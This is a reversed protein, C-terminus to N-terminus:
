RTFSIPLYVKSKQEFSVIIVGYHRREPTKLTPSQVYKVCQEATVITSKSCTFTPEIHKLFGGRVVVIQSVM